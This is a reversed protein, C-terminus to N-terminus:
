GEKIKIPMLVAIPDDDCRVLTMGNKIDAVPGYMEAHRLDKTLKVYDERIGVETGDTARFICCDRGTKGTSRKIGTDTLPCEAKILRHVINSRVAPPAEEVKVYASPTPVARACYNDLYWTLGDHELMYVRDGKLQLKLAWILTNTVWKATYNTINKM